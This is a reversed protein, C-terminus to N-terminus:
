RWNESVVWTRTCRHTCARGRLDSPLHILVLKHSHGAGVCSFDEIKVWPFTADRHSRISVQDDPVRVTHLGDRGLRVVTYPKGTMLLRTYQLCWSVPGMWPNLFGWDSLLLTEGPDIALKCHGFPWFSGIVKKISIWLVLVRPCMESIIAETRVREPDRSCLNKARPNHGRQPNFPGKVSTVYWIDQM